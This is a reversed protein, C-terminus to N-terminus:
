GRELRRRRFSRAHRAQLRELMGAAHASEQAPVGVEDVQLPERCGLEVDGEEAGRLGSTKM